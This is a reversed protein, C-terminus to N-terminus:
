TGPTLQRDGVLNPKDGVMDVMMLWGTLGEQRWGVIAMGHGDRWGYFDGVM